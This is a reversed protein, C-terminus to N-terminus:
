SGNFRSGYSVNRVYQSNYFPIGYSMAQFQTCGSQGFKENSELAKSCSSRKNQSRDPSTTPTKLCIPRSSCIPQADFQDAFLRDLSRLDFPFDEIPFANLSGQAMLKAEVRLSRADRGGLAADRLHHDIEMLIKGAHEGIFGQEIPVAHEHAAIGRDPRNPAIARMIVWHLDDGARDM